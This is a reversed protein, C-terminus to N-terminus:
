KLWSDRKTGLLAKFIEIDETTTIKINRESGSAFYLTEGLDVMMNNTYSPGYIGIKESFAKEYAKRLKGFYYAQPTQVRRLTERNIYKVTSIEDKKIFIQENYPLSSVGNGYKRCTVIVDSLVAENIMPRIGDHLVVIDDDKAKGDLVNLANRYSEHVTSGGTVIDMLKTINYQKAYARLIDHWGDLCSVVIGDIDPHKQFNELTYIIIPKDYVNIFQKPIDQLTREGRGAAIIIAINSM